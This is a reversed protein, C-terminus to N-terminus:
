FAPTRMTGLGRGVQLLEEERNGEECGGATGRGVCVRDVVVAYGAQAALRDLVLGRCAVRQVEEEDEADESVGALAGRDIGERLLGARAAGLADVQLLRGRRRVPVDQRGQGEDDM